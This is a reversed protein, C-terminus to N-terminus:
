KLSSYAAWRLTIRTFLIELAAEIEQRSPNHKHLLGLHRLTQVAQQEHIPLTFCKIGNRRRKRWRAVYEANRLRSPTKQLM